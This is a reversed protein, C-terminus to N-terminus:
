DNKKEELLKNYFLEEDPCNNHEIQITTHVIKYNDILLKKTNYITDDCEGDDLINIHMAASIQGSALEWIHIHHVNNVHDINTIIDKVIADIDIHEPKGTMLIRLCDKLLEWGSKLILSALLVSIIPDIYYWDTFYIVIGGIIAGVSGLIDLLIHLIVGRMNINHGDHHHHVVKFLVLNVILGIIAIPLMWYIDVHEPNLIRYIAEYIIYAFLGIWMLANLFAAIVEARMFGYSYTDTPPKRGIWFGFVAIIMALADTSLHLADSLLALSNSIHAGFLEIVVFLILIFISIKLAREEKGARRIHYQNHKM